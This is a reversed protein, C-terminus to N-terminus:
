GQCFYIDYTASPGGHKPAFFFFGYGRSWTVHGKKNQWYNRNPSNTIYLIRIEWNFKNIM